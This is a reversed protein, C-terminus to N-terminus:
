SRRCSFTHVAISLPCACRFAISPNHAWRSEVGFPSATLRVLASTLTHQDGPALPNHPCILPAAILAKKIRQGTKKDLTEVLTWARAMSMRVRIESVRKIPAAPGSRM